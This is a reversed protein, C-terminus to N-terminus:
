FETEIESILVSGGLCYLNHVSSQATSDAKLSLVLELFNKQKHLGPLTSFVSFVTFTLYFFEKYSIDKEIYLEQKVDIFFWLKSFM